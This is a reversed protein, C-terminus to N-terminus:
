PKRRKPYNRKLYGLSVVMPDFDGDDVENLVLIQRRYFNGQAGLYKEDHEYFSGAIIGIMHKGDARIQSMDVDLTQQHGAICTMHKKTVLARATTIPRQMPGSTFYHAYAVGDIIVPQLFPYVDWGFEAYGLDDISLMGELRADEQVARLIREEHNGLTLVMRPRWDSKEIETKIPDVLLRMSERASAIDKKYRRGEFDLKGRDYSSLSEMDAFDGLCVIVDPRKYAIYEGTSRLYDNPVGDKQQADPIVIHRIGRGHTPRTTFRKAAPPPPVVSPQAPAGGHACRVHRRVCDDCATAPRGV